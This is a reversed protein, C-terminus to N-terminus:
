ETVEHAGKGIHAQYFSADYGITQQYVSAVDEIFKEIGDDKVIAIACGGFGAGTVRAGLCSEHVKAADVLTDLEVGTVEYDTKLSEHSQYMLEGFEKINGKELVVVAKKVRENETVAHYARLYAIDDDGFSSKEAELQVLSLECIDQIDYTNKLIKLARQCEELRQNYKSDTLGRVKNTNMIIISMDDLVVPVVRHQAKQTDLLLASDKEGFTIAYQDMIGTNVGMFENEVRRTVHVIDIKPIGLNYLKDIMLTTVVDISASSSLGAGNPINGYYLVDFGTDITYAEQIYKLVGKPYNAWEDEKIYEIDDLSSQIIGLEEFNMSYYQVIRDERKSVLAYTGQSIACPFVLGGNYDIHEGILNIRGPAFFERTAKKKYIREYTEFLLKKDM